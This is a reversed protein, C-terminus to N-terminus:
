TYLFRSMDHNDLFAPRSFEAPFFTEHMSLFSEFDALSMHEFAIMERLARALLFDLTGDMVGSFARQIDASHVVEGFIWCAPKVKRCARRFDVWFDFPPGYAYDLRFGDFGEELWYRAVDLIYERM